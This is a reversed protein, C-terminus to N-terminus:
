PETHVSHLIINLDENYAYEITQQYLSTGSLSAIVDFTLRSMICDFYINPGLYTNFCIIHYAM